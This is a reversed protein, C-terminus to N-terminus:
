VASLKPPRAEWYAADRTCLTANSRNTYPNTPLGTVVDLLEPRMCQHNIKEKRDDYACRHWACDKCFKPKAAEKQDKLRDLTKQANPTM